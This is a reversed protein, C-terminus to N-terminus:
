FNIHKRYKETNFATVASKNILTGALNPLPCPAFSIPCLRARSRGFNPCLKARLRSLIPCLKSRSRGLRAPVSKRTFSRAFSVFDPCLKTPSRHFCPCFDALMKCANKCRSDSFVVPILNPLHFLLFYIYQIYIKKIRAPRLGLQLLLQHRYLPVHRNAPTLRTIRSEANWDVGCVVLLTVGVHGAQLNVDVHSHSAMSSRYEIMSTSVKKRGILRVDASTQTRAVESLPRRM